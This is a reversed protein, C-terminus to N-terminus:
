CLRRGAAQGGAQLRECSGQLLLLLLPLLLSSADLSSGRERRLLM